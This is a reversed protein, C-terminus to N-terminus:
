QGHIMELEHYNVLLIIEKKCEKQSSPKMWNWSEWVNKLGKAYSVKSARIVGVLNEDKKLKTMVHPHPHPPHICCGM